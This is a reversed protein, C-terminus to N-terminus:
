GVVMETQDIERLEQLTDEDMLFDLEGSSSEIAEMEEWLTSNEEAEIAEALVIRDSSLLDEELDGSTAEILALDDVQALIQTEQDVQRVWRQPSPRVVLFTLVAALTGALAFAFRPRPIPVEQDHIRSMVEQGDPPSNRM